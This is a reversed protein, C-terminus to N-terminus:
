SRDTGSRARMGPLSGAPLTNSPGSGKSVKERVSAIARPTSKGAASRPASRLMREGQAIKLRVLRQGPQCTSLLECRACRVAVRRAPCAGSMGFHCLAFDYRVPDDPDVLRLSATIEEATRWSLDRRRTLGLNRSMRSVHTDVPIILRRPSLGRWAGLDVEDPGRAMWRLYLLHRKSAGGRKADPLLHHLARPPGLASKVVKFDRTRLWDTFGALATKLDGGKMLEALFLAELSGFAHLAEGIAWALCAVDAGLNFRYVLGAFPSFDRRERLTRCFGSPSPGLSRLLRALIPKFLDVRGYALSACFLGAVEQDEARDYARVLSVPDEEVRREASARARLADLRPKLQRARAATLRAVSATPRDAPEESSSM